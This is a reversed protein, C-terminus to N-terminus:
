DDPEYDKEYDFKHHTFVGDKLCEDCNGLEEQNEFECTECDDM